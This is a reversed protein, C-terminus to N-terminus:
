SQIQVLKEKLIKLAKCDDENYTLVEEMISQDKTKKWEELALMADYGKFNPNKWRFGLTSAVDKLSYFRVPMALSRRVTSYLDVFRKLLEKTEMGSLIAFKQIVDRDFRDYHYVPAEPYESMFEFFKGWPEKWNEDDLLFHHYVDGEIVGFLYLDGNSKEVDFFYEHESKPLFFKEILVPESRCIAMAQRVIAMAEKSDVGTYSSIVKPDANSISKLNTFGAKLLSKKRKEGIGNILSIDEVESSIKVCDGYFPCGKCAYSFTPSPPSPKEFIEKMNELMMSTVERHLKIKKEGNLFKIVVETSERDINTVFSLFTAEIVHRERVSKSIRNLILISKGAKESMEDAFAILHMGKYDAEFSLAGNQHIEDKLLYAKRHCLYFTTMLEQDITM